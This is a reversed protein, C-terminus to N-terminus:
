RYGSVVLVGYQLRAMPDGAGTEMALLNSM